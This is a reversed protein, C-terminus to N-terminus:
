DKHYYKSDLAIKKLRPMVAVSALVFLGMIALDGLARAPPAGRMSQELFIDMYFTFPFINALSAVWPYMAMHPFTLGCISLSITAYGGGVSLAFRMNATLAVLMVGISMYGLILMLNAVVVILASHGEFPLGMYRYLMTNMLLSVVSFLVVYPLLKYTLARTISGGASALWRAATGNKLEGGVTYVTVMIVMIVLLLPLLAPLLYYAYSGYPNFLIHKELAVPYAIQYGKLPPVGKAGLMSTEVGINLAALVTSLDRKLLGSSLIRAGSVQASIQGQRGGYIASELGQPIIVLASIEGRLMAARGQEPSEVMQSVFATPTAGVMNVVQRSTATRDGDYIAVPINHVTGRAFMVGYLLTVAVPIIVTCILLMPNHILQQIERKLTNM